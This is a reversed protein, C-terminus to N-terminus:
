PQKLFGIKAPSPVELSQEHLKAFGRKAAEDGWGAAGYIWLPYGPVWVEPFAIM